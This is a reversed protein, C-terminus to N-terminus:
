AFSLPKSKRRYAVLGLGLFGLIMMAWTSPEPVASVTEFTGPSNANFGIGAVTNSVQDTVGAFGINFLNAPDNDVIFEFEQNGDILGGVTFRWNIIQGSSDTAVYFISIFGGTTTSSAVENGVFFSYTQILPGINGAFGSALPTTVTFSGTISESFTYPDSASTFDNGTYTYITDAYASSTGASLATLVVVAAGLLGTRMAIRAVPFATIIRSKRRYAMFGLGLFGLIMMAWTSPEPVDTVTWSGLSDPNPTIADLRSVYPQGNGALNCGPVGVCSAYFDVVSSQDYALRQTVTGPIPVATSLSNITYAQIDRGTITPAIGFLASMESFIYWARITGSSDTNV